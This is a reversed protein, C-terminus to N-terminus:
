HIDRSIKSRLYHIFAAFYRIRLNKSGVITLIRRYFRKSIILKSFPIKKLSKETNPLIEERKTIVRYAEYQWKKYYNSFNCIKTIFADNKTVGIIAIDRNISILHLNHNIGQKTFHLQLLGGLETGDFQRHPPYDFIFNGLSYFVICNKIYEFGQLTHSHHSVIFDPKYKTALDRLFNRKQPSPFSSYEEGGHFIIGTYDAKLKSETIKQNLLKKKSASFIGPQNYGAYVKSYDCISILGVNVDNKSLYLVKSAEDLNDGAGLFHVGENKLENRTTLWGDNEFDFMHNNSVNFVDIHRKKLYSITGPPNTLSHIDDSKSKVIPGELNTVHFNSQKLLDTLQSHFIDSAQHFAKRFNGCFCVDGSFMIVMDNKM